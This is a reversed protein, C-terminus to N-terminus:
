FKLGAARAAEALAKVRGHYLYGGRDFVVAEINLALARKAVLTGVETAAAVNSGNKVNIEKDLSSASCLTKGTQDDIIQAYIQKNSRFVNLRPKTSTGVLTQRIRLHRKQRTVNKSVKSIM